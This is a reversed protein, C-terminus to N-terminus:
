AEPSFLCELIRESSIFFFVVHLAQEHNLMWLLCSTSVKKEITPRFTALKALIDMSYQQVELIQVYASMSGLVAAATQWRIMTGVNNDFHSFTRLLDLILVVRDVPDKLSIDCYNIIFVM